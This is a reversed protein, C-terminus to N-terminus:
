ESWILTVVEGSKGACEDHSRTRRHKQIMLGGGNDDAFDHGRIDARQGVLVACERVPDFQVVVAARLHIEPPPEQRVLRAPEVAPSKRGGIEGSVRPQQNESRPLVALNWAQRKVRTKLETGVAFEEREHLRVAGDGGREAGTQRLLAGVHAVAEDAAAARVAEEGRRGRAERVRGRRDVEHRIGLEGM